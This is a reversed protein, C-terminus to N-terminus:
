IYESLNDQIQRLVKRCTALDKPDINALAQTLADFGVSEMETRIQKGEHTLFIRKHRRDLQDPVRLVYNRKELTNLTRTMNTKDMGCYEMLQQQNQGDQEWLHVLVIFHSHHIDHGEKRFSDMLHRGMAKATMGVLKGM